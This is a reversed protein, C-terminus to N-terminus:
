VFFMGLKKDNTSVLPLGCVANFNGQHQQQQSPKVTDTRHAEHELFLEAM